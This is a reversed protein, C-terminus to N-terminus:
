KYALKYNLLNWVIGRYFSRLLNTKGKLLYKLTNKPVSILFFFALGAVYPFGGFNRRMFLIRNRTLYYVKLPSEDGGTSVSEKHLIKSNGLYYMSYGARKVQECWDHEEYYLFFLEPMPGVEQIIKKPIVLAAGHGLDTKYCTDYQGKDEEYLGIRKGRGTYPSIGVAGAYQITKGDPYLVKPSAMGVEPHNMMFTIIPELFDHFLITDNNLFFIYEGKAVQIGLNNGGAFGLNIDSRIFKVEPFDKKIVAEPNERSANDVLIIEINAYTLQRASLLFELTDPTANYNVAIFSVLPLDGNMGNTM